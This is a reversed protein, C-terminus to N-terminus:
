GRKKNNRSSDDKRSVGLLKTKAVGKLIGEEEEWGDPTRCRGFLDDGDDDGDDEEEYLLLMDDGRFTTGLSGPADVDIMLPPPFEVGPIAVEGAAAAAAVSTSVPGSNGDSGGSFYPLPPPAPAM